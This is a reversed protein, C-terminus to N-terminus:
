LFKREYEVQDTIEVLVLWERVGVQHAIVTAVGGLARNIEPLGELQGGGYISTEVIHLVSAKTEKLIHFFSSCSLEDILVCASGCCATNGLYGWLYGYDFTYKSIYNLKSGHSELFIGNPFITTNM